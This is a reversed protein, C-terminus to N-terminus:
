YNRARVGLRKGLARRAWPTKQWSLLGAVMRCRLEDRDSVTAASIPKLALLAHFTAEMEQQVESSRISAHKPDNVISFSQKASAIIKHNLAQM